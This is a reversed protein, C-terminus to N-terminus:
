VLDHRQGVSNRNHVLPFQHGDHWAGLSVAVPQAEKHGAAGDGLSPREERRTSWSDCASVRPEDRTNTFRGASREPVLEPTERATLAIVFHPRRLVFAVAHGVPTALTRTHAQNTTAATTAGLMRPM